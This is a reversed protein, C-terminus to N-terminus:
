LAMSALALHHKRAEEPNLYLPSGSGDISPITGLASPLGGSAVRYEPMPEGIEQAQKLLARRRYESRLIEEMLAAITKAAPTYEARIRAALADNAKLADAVAARYAERVEVAEREAHAVKLAEIAHERREIDRHAAAIVEDADKHGADDMADMAAQRALKAQEIRAKSDSIAHEQKAIEDALTATSRKKRGLLTDIISM